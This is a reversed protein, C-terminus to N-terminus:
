AVKGDPKEKLILTFEACEYIVRTRARKKVDKKDPAKFAVMRWDRPVWAANMILAIDKPM